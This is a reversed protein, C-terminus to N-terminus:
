PRDNIYNHLLTEANRNYIDGALFSDEYLKRLIDEPARSGAKILNHKRLYNKIESIAHKKLAIHENKVIKRTKGSKILVGVKKGKKGLSFIKITRKKNIMRVVDTPSSAQAIRGRVEELKKRRREAEVSPSPINLPALTVKAKKRRLTQRYQAYTPKSGNKLNGYPPEQTTVSPIHVTPAKMIGKLPAVTKQAEADRAAKRERRRLTRRAKKENKEKIMKEVYKMQDSFTTKVEESPVPKEKTYTGEQELKEKARKQHAKIKALLQKKINNPRIGPGVDPKKKRERSRKFRGGPRLFIPNVQITKRNM